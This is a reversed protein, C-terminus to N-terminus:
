PHLWIQIDAVYRPRPKAWGDDPLWRMSGVECATVVGLDHTGPLDRAAHALVTAMGERATAKPGGWVDVQVLAVDLWHLREAPAGGVRQFRLLPNPGPETPMETFIRGDFIDAIADIENAWEVLLREVDPLLYPESM